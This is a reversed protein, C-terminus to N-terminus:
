RRPEKAAKDKADNEAQLKRLERWRAYQEAKGADLDEEGKLWFGLWDANGQQSVMRDWPKVLLHPADQMMVLEVPRGLRSLAAFWEWEGLLSGRSHSIIRIPTHVKDINFGPSGAVWSKIEAGFPVGGNFREWERQIVPNNFAIYQFYGADIGDEVAAAVIQYHSHTLTYKVYYCSRSFGILAVLDKRIFRKGDLLDIASEYVGMALAAEQPTDWYKAMYGSPDDHDEEGLQLVMIGKGALTQAAYGSSYAGDMSFREPGLSGHTQIVLPYREEPAYHAPYYLEGGVKHGDKATWTIEEVKGFRLHSFQPNVDLLLAEKKAVRDAVFLRPPTNMDQEVIFGPFGGAGTDETALVKWKSDTVRMIVTSMIGDARSSAKTNRLILDGTKENWRVVQLSGDGLTDFEGSNPELAITFSKSEREERERGESHELPLFVGSLFLRRSDRSWLATSYADKPFSSLVVNRRTSLDIIVYAYFFQSSRLLSATYAGWADPRHDLLGVMAIHEGDPSLIPWGSSPTITLGNPLRVQQTPANERKVFLEGKFFFGNAINNRDLLLDPLSQASVVVGNRRTEEQDFFGKSPAEATYAINKGDATASYGFLRTLHNTIRKLRHSRINLSYLQRLEGPHEGLFLLTESDPLWSIGEIAARYSTSSLTLLIEPKASNFLKDTRWVLISYDNTNAELNGRKTLVVVKGGDPSFLSVDTAASPTAEGSPNLVQSMTVSDAVTVVRGSKATSQVGQWESSQCIASSTPSCALLLIVFLRLNARSGRIEDKHSLGDRM